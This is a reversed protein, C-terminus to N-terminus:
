IVSSRIDGKTVLMVRKLLYALKLLYNLNGDFAVQQKLMANLLDPKPSTFLNLMARTDQFILCVNVPITGKRTATLTGDIFTAFVSLRNDKTTIRYGAQLLAIDQKLVPHVSIFLGLGKLLAELLEGMSEPSLSGSIRDILAERTKRPAGSAGDAGNTPPLFPDLIATVYDIWAKSFKIGHMGFPNTVPDGYLAHPLDRKLSPPARWSQIPSLDGHIEYIRPALGNRFWRANHPASYPDRGMLTAGTWDALLPHDSVIAPLNQSPDVIIACHPPCHELLLDLDGQGMCSRVAAGCLCYAGSRDTKVRSVVIRIDSKLWSTSISVGPAVVSQEAPDAVLSEANEPLLRHLSLAIATIRSANHQALYSILSVPIRGDAAICVSVGEEKALSLLSLQESLGLRDLSQDLAPGIGNRLVFAQPCRQTVMVCPLPKRTRVRQM